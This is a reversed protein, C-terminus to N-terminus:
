KEIYVWKWEDSVGVPHRVYGKVYDKQVYATSSFYIPAVSMADIFIKEAKKMDDMRLKADPTSEADNILKDYEPDSFGSDNNGGNTVWMDLFTMPDNYDAIWDDIAMDYQKSKLRQLRVKFAMSQIEVDVGLNKKWFEQLAQALKKGSDSDSALLTIKPLKTINLEKMGENLLEKAKNTDESFLDGVEKRYEDKEGPIGNPVIGYAPSSGDKLVNDALEKRNIALSFARRINANKFIPSTNNLAIFYVEGNPAYKVQGKYKDIYDGTVSITDYKGTDYNQALTNLDKVIDLDIESLKVNNKDWYNENKVLTLNQEHNWEKLKFPGSFVMNDPSSALKDGVKEVFSKEVPLYTIFSTLGLFYPTPKELTVQLTKSDLAKIGVDDASAKGSNYKEANKIPYLIYAYESATKPDLARKWSYEFDQATIPNGDSWKINDKLHFTYTLKDPSITWDKALGSGKEVKGDKDIRVLGEFVANLIEFSTMDTARQPDLMPPDNPLSLHLVQKVNSNANTTSMKKDSKGCGTLLISLLLVVILTRTIFRM